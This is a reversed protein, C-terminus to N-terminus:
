TIRGGAAMKSSATDNTPEAKHAALMRCMSEGRGFTSCSVATKLSIASPKRATLLLRRSLV